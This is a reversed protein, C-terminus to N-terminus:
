DETKESGYGEVAYAIAEFLEILGDTNGGGRSLERVKKELPRVETEIFRRFEPDEEMRDSLLFFLPVNTWCYIDPRGNRMDYVTQRLTEVFDGEPYDCLDPCWVGAASGFFASYAENGVWEGRPEVYHRSQIREIHRRLTALDDGEVSVPFEYERCGSTENRLVSGIDARVGKVAWGQLASLYHSVVEPKVLQGRFEQLGGNELRLAVDFSDAEDFESNPDWSVTARLKM